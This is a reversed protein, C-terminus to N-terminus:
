KFLTGMSGDYGYIECYAVSKLLRIFEKFGKKIESDYVKFIGARFDPITSVLLMNVYMDPHEMEWNKKAYIKLMWLYM